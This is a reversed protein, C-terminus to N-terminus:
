RTSCEVLAPAETAMDALTVVCKVQGGDSRVQRRRGGQVQESIILPAPPTPPSLDAGPVRDALVRGDRAALM